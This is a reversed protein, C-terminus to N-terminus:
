VEKIEVVFEKEFYNSIIEAFQAPTMYVELVLEVLEPSRVKSKMMDTTTRALIARLKM